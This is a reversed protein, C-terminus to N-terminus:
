TTTSWRSWGSRSWPSGPRAGLPPGAHRDGRRTAGSFGPGGRLPLFRETIRQREERSFASTHGVYNLRGADDHLGLLLSGIEGEVKAAWRFGGVVCDVTRRRKVKQMAREGARYADALRKAVVGDVGRASALWSEAVDRDRTMPSVRISGDRLHHRGFAELAARREELPRDVLSRGPPEV